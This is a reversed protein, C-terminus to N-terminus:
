EAQHFYSDAIYNQYTKTFDSSSAGQLHFSLTDPFLTFNKLSLSLCCRGQGVEKGLFPSIKQILFSRWHESPIGLAVDSLTNITNLIDLPIARM